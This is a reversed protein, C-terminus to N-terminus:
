LSTPIRLAVISRAVPLEWWLWTSLGSKRLMRKIEATAGGGAGHAQPLPMPAISCLAVSLYPFWWIAQDFLRRVLLRLRM